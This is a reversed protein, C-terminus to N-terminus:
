PQAEGRALALLDARPLKGLANRPLRDVLWLPRPLFVPDIRARLAALLANRDLTRTVVVAALRGERSEIPASEDDPRFFVGDEVGPVTVLLHNLAALSARKGGVNVVDDSRGELRFRGAADLVLRDALVGPRAVHGGAAMFRGDREFVRVGRMPQWWSGQVTRRTAVMGTEACGYVELLRTDWRRECDQATETALPATACVVRDLAPLGVASALLARLHVPTTVLVRRGPLASLAAAVQEPHLPREAAFAFGGHLALLLSSELGYMHQAPVTALLVPDQGELGLAFAEARSGDVLGAFHKVQPVPEGTSGSTFVVAADADRAVAPPPWDLAGALRVPAAAGSAYPRAFAIDAGADHLLAFRGYRGALGALAAPTRAAPLLNVRGAALAACFAVAFAYRDECANLVFRAPPLSQATARVDAVFMAAAVPEGRVYAVTDGPRAHSLIPESREPM